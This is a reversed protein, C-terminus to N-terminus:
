GIKSNIDINSEKCYISMYAESDLSTFFFNLINAALGKKEIESRNWTFYSSIGWDLNYQLLLLIDLTYLANYFTVADEDTARGTKGNHSNCWWTDKNGITSMYM